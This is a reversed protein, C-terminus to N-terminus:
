NNNSQTHADANTNTIMAALNTMCAHVDHSTIQWAGYAQANTTLTDKRRIYLYFTDSRLIQRCSRLKFLLKKM